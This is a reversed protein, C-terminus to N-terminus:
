SVMGKMIFEIIANDKELALTKNFKFSLDTVLSCCLIGGLCQISVIPFWGMIYYSERNCSKECQLTGNFIVSFSFILVDAVLISFLVM